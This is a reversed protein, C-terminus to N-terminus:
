LSNLGIRNGTVDPFSYEYPFYINWDFFFICISNVWVKFIGKFYLYFSVKFCTNFIWNSLRLCYNFLKLNCSDQKINFVLQCNSIEIFIVLEDGPRNKESANVILKERNVVYWILLKKINTGPGSSFICTCDSSTTSCNQLVPFCNHLSFKLSQYIYRFIYYSHM